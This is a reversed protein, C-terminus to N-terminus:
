HLTLARVQAHRGVDHTLDLARVVGGGDPNHDSTRASHAADGITGDSAKSRNPSLANIQARLTELSRALRWAM